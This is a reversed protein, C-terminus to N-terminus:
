FPNPPYPPSNNNGGNNDRNNDNNYGGGQYNNQNNGYYNHRGNNQNNNYYNNQGNNTYNGYNGNQNNGYYNNGGNNQGNGYYSNNHPPQGQPGNQPSTYQPQPRNQFYEYKADEYFAATAAYVYPELFLGLIITGIVSFVLLLIGLVPFFPTLAAAAIMVAVPLLTWGIFSFQLCFLRGKKGKMMEKSIDIAQMGEVSPDDAMIYESMAYAYSKVIGPIIFLLSWLFIFISKVLYMIFTNVFNGLPEFVSSLPPESQRTLRIFFLALGVTLPGGILLGGIATCSLAGIVLAYILVACVAVGWKGKLNQRAIARYESSSKM